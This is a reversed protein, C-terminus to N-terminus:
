LKLLGVKKKWNVIALAARFVDWDHLDRHEELRYSGDESLYLAFRQLPRDFCRAYAATQLAHWPAPIGSKIDIIGERGKWRIRRDLTGAYLYIPHYVPEETALVEIGTEEKFKRWGEIYPVAPHEVQSIDLAGKDDLETLTHVTIGRDLYMGHYSAYEFLRAERLVTTVGILKRGDLFYSHSERDFVLEPM